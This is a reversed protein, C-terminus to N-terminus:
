ALAQALRLQEIAPPVEQRYRMDVKCLGHHRLRHRLLTPRLMGVEDRTKEGVMGVRRGPPYAVASPSASVEDERLQKGIRAEVQGELCGDGLRM